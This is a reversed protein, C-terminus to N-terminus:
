IRDLPRPRVRPALAANLQVLVIFVISWYTNFICLLAGFAYPAGHGLRNRWGHRRKM